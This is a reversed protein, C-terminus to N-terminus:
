TAGVEAAQVASQTCPRRRCAQVASLSSHIGVRHMLMPQVPADKIGLSHVKAEEKGDEWGRKLTEQNGSGRKGGLKILKVSAAAPKLNLTTTGDGGPKLHM